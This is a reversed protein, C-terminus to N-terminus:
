TGGPGWDGHVPHFGVECTLFRGLACPLAQPFFLRPFFPLDLGTVYLLGRFVLALSPFFVELFYSCYIFPQRHESVGGSDWKGSKATRGMGGDRCVAEGKFGLAVDCPCM